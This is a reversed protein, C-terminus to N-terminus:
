QFGMVMVQAKLTRSPSLKRKLAALYVSKAEDTLSSEAVLDETSHTSPRIAKEGQRAGIHTAHQEATQPVLIGRRARPLAHINTAM